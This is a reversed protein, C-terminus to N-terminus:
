VKHGKIGGLTAQHLHEASCPKRITVYRLLHRVVGIISGAGIAKTKTGYKDPGLSWDLDGRKRGPGLRRWFESGPGHHRQIWCPADSLDVSCHVAQKAARSVSTRANNPSFAPLAVISVKNVVGFGKAPCMSTIWRLASRLQFASAGSMSIMTNPVSGPAASTHASNLRRCSGCTSVLENPVFRM